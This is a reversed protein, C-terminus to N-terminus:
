HSYKGYPNHWEKDEVIYEVSENVFDDLTDLNMVDGSVTDYCIVRVDEPNLTIVLWEWPEYEVAGDLIDIDLQWFKEYVEPKYHEIVESPRKYATIAAIENWTIKVTEM